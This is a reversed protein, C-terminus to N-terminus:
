RRPRRGDPTQADAARSPDPTSAAVDAPEPALSAIPVPASAFSTAPATQTPAEGPSGKTSLGNGTADPAESKARLAAEPAPGAFEAAPEDFEWALLGESRLPGSEGASPEPGSAGAATGGVLELESAREHLAADDPDPALQAVAAVRPATPATVSGSGLRAARSEAAGPVDSEVRAKAEVPSQAGSIPPPPASRAPEGSAWSLLGQLYHRASEGASRGPGSASAPTRALPAGSEGSGEPGEAGEREPTRVEEADPGAAASKASLSQLESMRDRLAADDPDRELLRRYVGLAHGYLGQGAYLEALTRTVPGKHETAVPTESRPREGLEALGALAETNKPDLGLAARFALAAGVVDGQDRRVWGSVVHGPVFDSRGALGERLLEDAQDLDGARRYADALPAFVRGDPDRESRFLSRLERIEDEVSQAM